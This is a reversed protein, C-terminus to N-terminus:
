NIMYIVSFYKLSEAVGTVTTVVTYQGYLFISNVTLLTHMADLLLNSNYKYLNCNVRRSKINSVPMNRFIFFHTPDVGLVFVNKEYTFDYLFTIDLSLNYANSM